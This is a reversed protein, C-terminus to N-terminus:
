NRIDVAQRYAPIIRLLDVGALIMQLKMQFDSRVVLLHPNIQKALWVYRSFGYRETDTEFVLGREIGKDILAM